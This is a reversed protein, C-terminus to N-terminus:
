GQYIPSKQKFKLDGNVQLSSLGEPTDFSLSIMSKM